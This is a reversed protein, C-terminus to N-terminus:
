GDDNYRFSIVTGTAQQGNEITGAQVFYVIVVVSFCFIAAALFLYSIVKLLKAAYSAGPVSSTASHKQSSSNEGIQEGVFGSGPLDDQLADMLLKAQDTCVGFSSELYRIAEDKQGNSLLRIVESKAESTFNEM